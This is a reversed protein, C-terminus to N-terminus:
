LILTFECYRQPDESPFAKIMANFVGDPLQYTTERITDEVKTGTDDALGYEQPMNVLLYNALMSM